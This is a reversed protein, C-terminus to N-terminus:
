QRPSGPFGSEGRKIPQSGGDHNEPEEGAPNLLLAQDLQQLREANWAGDFLHEGPADRMALRVTACDSGVEDLVLHFHAEM